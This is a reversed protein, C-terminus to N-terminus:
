REVMKGHSSDRRNEKYERGQLSEGSVNDHVLIVCVSSSPSSLLTILKFGSGQSDCLSRPLSRRIPLEVPVGALFRSGVDSM